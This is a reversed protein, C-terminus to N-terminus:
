FCLMSGPTTENVLYPLDDETWDWSLGLIASLDDLDSDHGVLFVTEQATEDGDEAELVNIIQNLM